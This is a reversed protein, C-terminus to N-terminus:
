NHYCQSSVAACGTTTLPRTTSLNRSLDSSNFISRLGQWTRELLGRYIGAMFPKPGWFYFEDISPLIELLALDVLGVSDCCHQDFDQPLM